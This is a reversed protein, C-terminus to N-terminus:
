RRRVPPMPELPGRQAVPNPAQGFESLQRRLEARESASLQRPAVGGGPHFQELVQRLPVQPRPEPPQPPPGAQAGTWALLVAVLYKM